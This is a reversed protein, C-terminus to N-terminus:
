GFVEFSGGRQGLSYLLLLPLFPAHDFSSVLGRGYSMHRMNNRPDLADRNLFNAFRLDIFEHRSDQGTASQQGNTYLVQFLEILINPSPSTDDYSTSAEKKEESASLM